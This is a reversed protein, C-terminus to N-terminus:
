AAEAARVRRKDVPKTASTMEAVVNTAHLSIAKLMNVIVTRDSGHVNEFNAASLKALVGSITKLTEAPKKAPDLVNTAEKGKGNGRNTRASALLGTQATFAEALDGTMEGNREVSGDLSPNNKAFLEKIVIELHYRVKKQLPYEAATKRTAAMWKQVHETPVVASWIMAEGRACETSLGRYDFDSKPLGRKSGAPDGAFSHGMRFEGIIEAIGRFSQEVATEGKIAQVALPAIRTAYPVLNEPLPAISGDATVITFKRTAM